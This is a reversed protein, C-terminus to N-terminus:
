AHSRGEIAAILARWALRCERQTVALCMCRVAADVKTKPM